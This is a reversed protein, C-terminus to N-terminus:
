RRQLDIVENESLIGPADTVATLVFYLAKGFMTGPGDWYEATEAKVRILCLNPDDKGQPFFLKMAPSWLADIRTRDQVISARGSVSVFTNSDSSTYAVNVRDDASIERVKDSDIGTAFWLDGDFEAQQTGLPRSVMRGGEGHTTLMAVKIDKILGALQQIHEARSKPM